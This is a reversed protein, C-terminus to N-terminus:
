MIYLTIPLTKHTDTARLDIICKNRTFAYGCLRNSTAVEFKAPVYTVRNLPSCTHKM